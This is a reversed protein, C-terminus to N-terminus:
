KQEANRALKLLVAVQDAGFTASFRRMLVEQLTSWDERREEIAELASLSIPDDPTGELAERYAEAAGDLDNLMGLRLEGVRAWLARRARPGQPIRAREALATAMEAVNGSAEYLRGLEALGEADGEDAASVKQLAAIADGIGEAGRREHLRAAEVLRTRRVQPDLDAEARKELIAALRAEDGAARYV